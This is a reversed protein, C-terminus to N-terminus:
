LHAPHRGIKGAAGPQLSDQALWQALPAPSTSGRARGEVGNNRMQMWKSDTQADMHGGQQQMDQDPLGPAAAGAQHPWQSTACPLPVLAPLLTTGLRRCVPCLYEDSGLDLNEALDEDQQSM